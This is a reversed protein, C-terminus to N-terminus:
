KEVLKGNEESFVQASFKFVNRKLNKWCDPELGAKICTNNLFEESNWGFEVAVQPLLLGSGFKDRIMLGDKGIKVKSPYETYKKVEIEKPKTLVSLEIRMKKFQEKTLPLFRSDEFAAGKSAKIVADYLSLVPEPYGICGNLEDQVYISVFVGRKDKFEKKIDECVKIEKNELYSLISDKALKILKKAQTLSIKDPNVM